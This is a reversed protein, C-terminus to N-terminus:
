KLFYKSLPAGHVNMMLFRVGCQQKCFACVSIRSQNCPMRVVGDLDHPVPFYPNMVTSDDWTVSSHFLGTNLAVEARM